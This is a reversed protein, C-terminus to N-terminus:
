IFLHNKYKINFPTILICLDDDLIFSKDFLNDTVNNFPDITSAVNFLISRNSNTYVIIEAINKNYINNIMDQNYLKNIIKNIKISLFNAYLRNTNLIREYPIENANDDINSIYLHSFLRKDISITDGDEFTLDINKIGERM